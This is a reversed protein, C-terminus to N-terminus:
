DEIEVTPYKEEYPEDFNEAVDAAVEAFLMQNRQKDFEIIQIRDMITKRSPLEALNDLEFKVLFDETTGFLMPRGPADKRGVVNILNTKSLMTIAYDSNVGRIDEIELRTIPQKYAVLSLVELLSRSLEREKLPTLVTTVAEGYNDNSSFTLKDGYTFFIIGSGNEKSFKGKLESIIEDLKKDTLEPLKAMLEERKIGKGSAFVIAEIINKLNDM